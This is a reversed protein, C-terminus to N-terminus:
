GCMKSLLALFVRGFAKSRCLVSACLTDSFTNYMTINSRSCFCSCYKPGQIYFFALLAIMTEQFSDASLADVWWSFEQQTKQQLRKNEWLLEKKGVTGGSFSAQTDGRTGWQPMLHCAPLMLVSKIARQLSLASHKLIHQHEAWVMFSCCFLLWSIFPAPAQRPTPVERHPDCMFNGGGMLQVVSVPQQTFASYPHIECWWYVVPIYDTYHKKENREM